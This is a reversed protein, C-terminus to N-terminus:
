LVQGTTDVMEEPSQNKRILLADTPKQMKVPLQLHNIIDDAKAKKSDEYDAIGKDDSSDAKQKM